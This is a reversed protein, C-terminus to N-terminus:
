DWLVENDLKHTVERILQELDSAATSITRPSETTKKAPLPAFTVKRRETGNSDSEAFPNSLNLSETSLRRNFVTLQDDYDRMTPAGSIYQKEPSLYNGEGVDGSQGWVMRLNDTPKLHMLSSATAAAVANKSAIELALQQSQREARKNESELRSVREVAEEVLARAHVLQASSENVQQQLTVRERDSAALDRKSQTHAQEYKDQMEKMKEMLSQKAATQEVLFQNAERLCETSLDRQQQAEHLQRLLDERLESQNRNHEAAQETRSQKHKALENELETIHVNMQRREQEGAAAAGEAEKLREALLQTQASEVAKQAETMRTIITSQLEQLEQARLDLLRSRETIEFQLKELEHNRESLQTELQRVKRESEELRRDGLMREDQVSKYESETDALQRRLDSIWIQYQESKQTEASLQQNLRSITFEYEDNNRLLQKMSDERMQHLESEASTLKQITSKLESKVANLEEIKQRNSLEHADHAEKLEVQTRALGTLATDRASKLRTILRQAMNLREVTAEHVSQLEALQGDTSARFTQQTTRLETLDAEYRHIQEEAKTLLASKLHMEEEVKTLQQRLTTLEHEVASQRETLRLELQQAADHCRTLDLHLREHKRRWEAAETQAQLCQQKTSELEPQLQEEICRKLELATTVGEEGTSLAVLLRSSANTAELAAQRQLQDITKLQETAKERSHKLDSELQAREDLMSQIAQNAHNIQDEHTTRESQWARKWKVAESQVALLRRRLKQIEVEHSNSKEDARAKETALERELQNLRQSQADTRQRVATLASEAAVRRENATRMSQESQIQALSAQELQKRLDGIQKAAVEARSCAKQYVGKYKMVNTSLESNEQTLQTIRSCSQNHEKRLQTLENSLKTVSTESKQLKNMLNERDTESKKLLNQLNFAQEDNSDRVSRLAEQLEQKEREYKQQLKGISTRLKATAKEAKITEEDRLRILKKMQSEAESVRTLLTNKLHELQLERSEVELMLTSCQSELSKRREREIELLEMLDTQKHVGHEAETCFNNYRGCSRCTQM